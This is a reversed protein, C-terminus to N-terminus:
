VASLNTVKAREWAGVPSMDQERPLGLLTQFDIDIPGQAGRVWPAFHRVGVPLGVDVEHYPGLLVPGLAVLVSSEVLEDDPFPGQSRLLDRHVERRGDTLSLTLATPRTHRRSRPPM